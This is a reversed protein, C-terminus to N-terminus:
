RSEGNNPLYKRELTEVAERLMKRGRDYDVPTAPTAFDLRLIRQRRRRNRKM